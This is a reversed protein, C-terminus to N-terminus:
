MLSTMKTEKQNENLYGQISSWEFFNFYADKSLKTFSEIFLLGGM